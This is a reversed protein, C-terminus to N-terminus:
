SKLLTSLLHGCFLVFCSLEINLKTLFSEIIDIWVLWLILNSLKVPSIGNSHVPVTWTKHFYIDTNWV